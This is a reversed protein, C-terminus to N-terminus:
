YISSCGFTINKSNNTLIQLSSNTQPFRSSSFTWVTIGVTTSGIIKENNPLDSTNSTEFCGWFIRKLNLLGEPDLIHPLIILLFVGKQDERSDVQYCHWASSPCPSCRTSSRYNRTEVRVIEQLPPLWSKTSYKTDNLWDWSEWVDEKGHDRQQM